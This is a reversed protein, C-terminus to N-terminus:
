RGLRRLLRGRLRRRGGILGFGTIALGFGRRLVALRLGALRGVLVISLASRPLPAALFGAFQEVRLLAFLAVGAAQREGAPLGISRGVFRHLVPSARAGEM